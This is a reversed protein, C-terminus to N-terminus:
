GKIVAMVAERIKGMINQLTTKDLNSAMISTRVACMGCGIDVGVANPIIVNETALVGGIPMGYGSHVDPMVALHHYAFPLNCLNRIQQAATEELKEWSEIWLKSHILGTEDVFM